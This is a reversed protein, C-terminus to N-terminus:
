RCSFAVGVYQSETQCASALRRRRALVILNRADRPLIQGRARSYQFAAAAAGVLHVRQRVDAEIGDADVERFARHLLRALVIRVEIDPLTVHACEVKGIAREVAIPRDAHDLM